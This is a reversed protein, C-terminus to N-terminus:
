DMGPWGSNCLSVMESCSFQVFYGFPVTGSNVCSLCERKQGKQSGCPTRIRHLDLQEIRQGLVGIGQSKPKENGKPKRTVLPM